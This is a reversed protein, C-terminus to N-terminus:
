RRIARERGDYRASSKHGIRFVFSGPGLADKADRTLDRRNEGILFRGNRAIAVFEGWHEAELPKGYREYLRDSERQLELQQQRRVESNQIM